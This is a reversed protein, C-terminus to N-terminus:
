RRDPFGYGAYVAFQLVIVVLLGVATSAFVRLWLPREGLFGRVILQQTTYLGAIFAAFILVSFM